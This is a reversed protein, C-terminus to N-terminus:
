NFVEIVLKKEKSQSSAEIANDLYVGIIRTLQKFDNVELKGLFSKEIKSSINVSVAIDKKEAEMFKYYFFGKLGNSPLYKFKSYKLMNDKETKKDGLISDIYEIIATNDEKDNIKCRITTIENKTEHLITQQEEVDSEYTKMIELLGDYRSKLGDNDFKEKLLMFLIAMFALIALLYILVDNSIKYEVAFKYFFFAIFIITLISVFIINKNTSDYNILKALPKRLSITLLIMEICICINGTISEIFCEYFFDKGLNLIKTIFVTTVLEPIIALIVYIIAAFLAKSFRLNFMTKFLVIYLLCSSMTKLTNDLYFVILTHLICGLIFIVINRWRKGDQKEEFIIMGFGYLSLMFISCSIFSNIIKM